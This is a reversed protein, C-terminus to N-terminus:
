KQTKIIIYPAKIKEEIWNETNNNKTIIPEKIEIKKFGEQKLIQTYDKLSWHYDILNVFKKSNIKLKVNYPTGSKQIKPKESKFSLFDGGTSKPNPDLIVLLGRKKLVRYIEKIIQSIEEKKSLVCIVFNIVVFDISNAKLFAINNEKIQHIKIGKNNYNKSTELMKKSPELATCKAKKDRLFRSFILNGAGYDLVVKNKVNGLLKFVENYGLEWKTTDKFKEYSKAIKNYNM